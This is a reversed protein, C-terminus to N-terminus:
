AERGAVAMVNVNAYFAGMEALREVSANHRDLEEQTVAGAKLAAEEIDMAQPAYRAPVLDVLL